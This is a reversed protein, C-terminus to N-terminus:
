RNVELVLPLEELGNVFASELRRPPGALAIGSFRSVLERLLVRAEMRALGAGLCYHIGFGFSVHPNPDRGVDLSHSDAGFVAEDRNASLHLLLLYDGEAIDRGGLSCSQTATRAFGMFPTTWRLLEEVASPILGPDEGLRGWEAPHEALARLGGSILQRTTENGAVLLSMCFGILEGDDLKDGDVEGALLDGILDDAAHARHDAVAELLHGIVEAARAYSEPTPDVAAAIAQDSWVRLQEPDSGRLGLLEAIMTLPLPVALREVADFPEGPTIGDLLSGVLETIRPELRTVESGHFQRSVIARHRSHEPPDLYLISQGAGIERERDGLLVGRASCFRRPDRLVSLVDAHRTVVWLEAAEDRHVPDERRWRRLVEHPDAYFAQNRVDVDLVEAM